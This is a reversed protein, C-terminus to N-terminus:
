QDPLGSMCCGGPWGPPETKIRRELSPPLAHFPLMPEATGRQRGAPGVAAAALHTVQAALAAAHVTRDDVRVPVEGHAHADRPFPEHLGGADALAGPLPAEAGVLGREHEVDLQVPVVERGGLRGCGDLLRVVAPVMIEVHGREPPLQPDGRLHLLLSAAHGGGPLGDDGMDADAVVRLPAILLEHAGELHPERLEPRRHGDTGRERSPHQPLEIAARRLAMIELGVPHPDEDVPTRADMLRRRHHEELLIEPLVLRAVDGVAVGGVEHGGEAAEALAAGLARGADAELRAELAAGPLQAHPEADALLLEIHQPRDGLQGTQDLLPLDKAKALVGLDVECPLREIGIRRREVLEQPHADGLCLATQAAASAHAAAGTRGGLVHRARGDAELAREGVLEEVGHAAPLQGIGVLVGVAGPARGEDTLLAARVDMHRHLALDPRVADDLARDDAALHREQDLAAAAPVADLRPREQADGCLGCLQERQQGRETLVPGRLQADPALHQRREIIRYQRLQATEHGDLLDLRLQQGVEQRGLRREAKVQIRLVSHRGAPYQSYIPFLLLGDHVPEVRGVQLLGVAVGHALALDDLRHQAIEREHLGLLVSEDATVLLLLDVLHQAVAQRKQQLHALHAARVGELGEPDMPAQRHLHAHRELAAHHVQGDARAVQGLLLQQLDQVAVLEFLRVMAKAAAGEDVEVLAHRLQALHVIRHM